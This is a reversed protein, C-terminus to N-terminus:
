QGIWVVGLAGAPRGGIRLEVDHRGPPLDAPLQVNLQMLGVFPSVLGAFFVQAQRGGVLVEVSALPRAFPESVPPTAGTEVAPDTLGQGTAFLLVFDGAQASAGEANLSGDLNVATPFLGPHTELVAVEAADSLVGNYEVRVRVSALGAVEFPVQVNVQDGRAFLLPAPTDNFFVRVGALQVPLKGTAPDLETVSVGQAPGINQGFITALEGPAVGGGVFDFAGVVSESSILPFDVGTPRWTEGGDTSRFVGGGNTAAYLGGPTHPDVAIQRVAVNSFGANIPTWSGSGDTSKFVGAPTAIYIAGDRPDIALSVVAVAVDTPLGANRATFDEGRNTSRFVGAGTGLYITRSDNPDVVVTFMRIGTQGSGDFRDGGNTSRILEYVGNLETIVFLNDADNPDLALGRINFTGLFAEFDEGRDRSRFLSLQSAFFGSSSGMWVTRGDSPHLALALVPTGIALSLWTEGGDDSRQLSGDSSDFPNVSGTYVRNSDAPDVLVVTSNFQTSGTRSEAWSSGFNETKFIGGGSVTAYAVGANRPDVAISLTNAVHLGASSLGFSAAQDTSVFVGTGFAGALVRTPEGPLALLSFGGARPLGNSRFWNAGGDISRIVGLGRDSAYLVASDSPDVAIDNLTFGLTTSILLPTEGPAGQRLLGESSAIFALDPDRPDFAIGDLALLPDLAFGTWSQGGDLSEVVVGPNAVGLIREPDAPAFAFNPFAGSITLDGPRIWGDGGNNSFFAGQARTGAILTEPDGPKVAVTLTQLDGIGDSAQEWPGQGRRRWVGAGDVSVYLRDQVGDISSVVFLDVPLGESFPQWSAGDDRSRFVGFDTAAYVTRPDGDVLHLDNVVAGPPGAQGHLLAAGLALGICALHTLRVAIVFMRSPLRDRPIWRLRNSDVM